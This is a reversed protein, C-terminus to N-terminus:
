VCVFEEMGEGGNQDFVVILPHQKACVDADRTTVHGWAHHRLGARSTTAPKRRAQDCGVSPPPSALLSAVPMEMKGPIIRRQLDAMM